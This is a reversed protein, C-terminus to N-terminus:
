DEECLRNYSFSDVEMKEKTYNGDVTQEKLIVMEEDCAPVKRLFLCLPCYVFNLVATARILWPFGIIKVIQGAVSPGIFYALCVALQAISYVSGYFSDHRTDVLLALLPMLAADTVGIGLGIGFHPLILQTLDTAFPLCVLCLAVFIMSGMSSMWRGVSRAAVGFFNTGVLYGISDPLFVLGLQWREAHMNELIWLPVTPELVSMALTTLMICGSVVLIYPDRLLVHLPTTKRPLTNKMSIELIFWQLGMDIIFLVAIILFPAVKGVFTYMVGGFPYGVLVGTAAGGMAVGMARSRQRDDPYKEAVISMGAVVSAASGLGHVARAIFLPIYTEASAFMLSALFIILSGSWLVSPYGVRNSLPGIFPNVILQVIAKSALLWGVKSDENLASVSLRSFVKQTSTQTVNVGPHVSRLRSSNQHFSLNYEKQDIDLLYDPIIPVVATLLISDLMNTYFVIMLALLTSSQARNRLIWFEDMAM